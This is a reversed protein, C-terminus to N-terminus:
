IEVERDPIKGGGGGGSGNGAGGGVGHSNALRSRAFESSLDDDESFSYKEDNYSMESYCESEGRNDMHEEFESDTISLGGNHRALAGGVGGGGAAAASELSYKHLSMTDSDVDSMESMAESMADDDYNMEQKMRLYEDFVNASTTCRISIDQTLMDNVSAFGPANGPANGNGNGTAAAGVGGGMGHNKAASKGTRFAGHDLLVVPTVPEESLMGDVSMAEDAPAAAMYTTDSDRSPDEMLVPDSLKRHHYSGYAGGKSTDLANNYPAAVSAGGAAGGFAEEHKTKAPKSSSRAIHRAVTNRRDRQRRRRWLVVIVLLVVLAGVGIGAYLAVKSGAGSGSKSSSMSPKDGATANGSARSGSAVSGNRLGSSPALTTNSSSVSAGTNWKKWNAATSCDVYNTSASVYPCQQAARAEADYEFCAFKDARPFICPPCKEVRVDCSKSADNVTCTQVTACTEITAASAAQLVAATALLAAARTRAAAM